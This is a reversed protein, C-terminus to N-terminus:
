PQPIIDGYRVTNTTTGTNCLEVPWFGLTMERDLKPREINWFNWLLLAHSAAMYNAIPTQPNAELNAETACGAAHVPSDSTDTEIEPFRVRPDLPGGKWEPLYVYAQAGISSNAAIIVTSRTRDAAALADKRAPHNDCFVLLISREDPQFSTDIYRPTATLQDYESYFMAHLINVKPEAGDTRGVRSFQQRRLNKEELVDGDILTVPANRFRPNDIWRLTKLFPPLFYSGVGGCGIIYHHTKM